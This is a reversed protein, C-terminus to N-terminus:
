RGAATGGEGAGRAANPGGNRARGAAPPSEIIVRCPREALVYELTPGFVSRGTRRQPPSMVIAKARIERAEAVIRRGAEGRRVKEWHGTV